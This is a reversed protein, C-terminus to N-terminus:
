AISGYIAGPLNEVLAAAESVYETPPVGLPVTTVQQLGSYDLPTTLGTVMEIGHRKAESVWTVVLDYADLWEAPSTTIATQRTLGVVERLLKHGVKALQAYSVATSIQVPPAPRRGYPGKYYTESAPNDDWVVVSLPKGKSNTGTVQVGNYGPQTSVSPTIETAMNWADREDFHVCVRSSSGRPVERMTLVGNADFYLVCGASQAIEVAAQWPDMGSQFTQAFPVINTPKLNFRSIQPAQRRILEYVVEHAEKGSAVKFNKTLTSASVQASRDYGTITYTPGPASSSHQPGDVEELGFVGLSFWQLSGGAYLGRQVKVEAHGPKMRGLWSPVPQRSDDAIQFSCSRMQDATVDLTVTGGPMVNGIETVPVKDATLLVRCFVEHSHAAARRITSSVPPM